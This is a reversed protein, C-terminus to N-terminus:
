AEKTTDLEMGLWGIAWGEIAVIYSVMEEDPLQTISFKWSGLFKEKMAEHLEDVAHGTHRSIDQLLGFYRRRLNDSCKHSQTFYVEWLHKGHFARDLYDKAKELQWTNALM